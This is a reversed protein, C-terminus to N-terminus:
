KETSAAKRASTIPEPPEDKTLEQETPDPNHAQEALTKLRRPLPPGAVCTSAILAAMSWCAM